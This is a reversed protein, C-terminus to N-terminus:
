KGSWPPCAVYGEVGDRHRVKVFRVQGDASFTEASSVVDCVRDFLARAGLLTVITCVVLLIFVSRISMVRM